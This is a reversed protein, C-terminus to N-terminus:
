SYMLRLTQLDRASLELLPSKWYMLDTAHPSHGDLGLAHGAEHIILSKFARLEQEQYDGADASHLSIRISALQLHVRGDSDTIEEFGTHGGSSGLGDPARTITIDAEDANTTETWRLFTQHETWANFADLITTRLTTDFGTADSRDVFIKLPLKEPGWRRTTISDLYNDADPKANDRLNLYDNIGWILGSFGEVAAHDPEALRFEEYLQISKNFLQQARDAQGALDLALAMDYAFAVHFPLNTEMRSMIADAQEFLSVADAFNLADRTKMGRDYLEILENFDDAGM